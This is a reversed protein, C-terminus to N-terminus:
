ACTRASLLPTTLSHRRQGCPKLMKADEPRFVGALDRALWARYRASVDAGLLITISCPIPTELTGHWRPPGGYRHDMRHYPYAPQQARGLSIGIAMALGFEGDV